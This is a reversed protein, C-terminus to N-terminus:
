LTSVVSAPLSGADLRAAVDTLTEPDTLAVAELLAGLVPPRTLLLPRAGPLRETLRAVVAERFVPLDSLAVSGGLVVPLEARAAIGAERAVWSAYGAFAVAQDDVLGCAVPDGETAALLVVRASGRGLVPVPDQRRTTRHRLTVVDPADYLELLRETLVTQEGLGQHARYVSRLALATLGSGGLHDLAWWGLCAEHGTASRAVVAPGTGAAIALGFGSPAGARLTAFGDNRVALPPDGPLGQEALLARWFQEDEPWDVGALCFSAARLPAATTGAAADAATLAERTAALVHTVALQEDAAGYVDGNGSRGWGLVTGDGDCVVAVTKSNGADVGLYRRSM